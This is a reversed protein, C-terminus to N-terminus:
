SSSCNCGGGDRLVGDIAAVNVVTSRHIQWFMAPDLQDHLERITMRIVSENGPEVVLTYKQDAKFYCIDDVMIMRMGNNRSAKIWQLRGKASADRDLHRLM